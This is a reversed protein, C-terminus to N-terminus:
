WEMAEQFSGSTVSLAHKIRNTEFGFEKLQEEASMTSSPPIM